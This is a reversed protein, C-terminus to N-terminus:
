LTGVDSVVVFRAGNDTADLVTVGVLNLRRDLRVDEGCEIRTHHFFATHQAALQVCLPSAKSPPDRLGRHAYEERGGNM